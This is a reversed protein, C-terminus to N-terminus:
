EENRNQPKGKKDGDEEEEELKPRWKTRETATKRFEEYFASLGSAQGYPEVEPEVNKKTEKVTPNNDAEQHDLPDAAQKPEDTEVVEEETSDPLKNVESMTSAEMRETATAAVEEEVEHSTTSEKLPSLDKEVPKDQKIKAEKVYKQRISALDITEGEKEVKDEVTEGSNEVVPQLHDSEVTPAVEEKVQEVAESAPAFTDEKGEVLQDGARDKHIVVSSRLGRESLNNTMDGDPVFLLGVHYHDGEYVSSQVFRVEGARDVVELKCFAPNIQLAEYLDRQSYVEWGNVKTVIEGVEIGMKEATSFPLIGLVTLGSARNTYLSTSRKEASRHFIYILERGLFGVAAVLPVLMAWYTALGATAVVFLGLLLLRKGFINIGEAPYDRQVTLTFGLIFPVFMFGIGEGATSFLPWWGDFSVAGVPFLLMIPVPWLRNGEHTGVTKGRKSTTLKPSTKKWGNRLVLAGETIFLAALLWAFGQLNISRIDGIWSNILAYNTHVEPLFYAILLAISGIFTMSLLRANRFPLFLMWLIVLLVMMGVPVQVGAVSLGVSLILGFILGIALPFTLEHIVDHVRTHFDKRERKVRSIGFWLATLIFIYTLPHLWLRGFAKAIELAIM